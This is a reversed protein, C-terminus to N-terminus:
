GAVAPELGMALALHRHRKEVADGYLARDEGALALCLQKGEIRLSARRLPGAVGGSLRQGLRIALGWRVARRLDAETAMEVFVYGPYLNRKYVRAVGGKMRREKLTPVLIRGVFAELGEIKVKRELAERVYDEKNSAVRLVYWKMGERTEFRNEGNKQAETMDAVAKM